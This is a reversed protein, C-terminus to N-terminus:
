TTGINNEGATKCLTGYLRPYNPPCWVYGLVLATDKYFITFHIFSVSKTKLWNTCKNATSFTPLLMANPLM